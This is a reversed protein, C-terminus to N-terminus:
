LCVINGTTVLTGVKGDVAAQLYVETKRTKEEKKTQKERKRKNEREKEKSGAFNILSDNYKQCRARQTAHQRM